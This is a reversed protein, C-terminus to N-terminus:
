DLVICLSPILVTRCDYRMWWTLSYVWQLPALNMSEWVGRNVSFRPLLNPTQTGSSYSNIVSDFFFERFSVRHRRLLQHRRRHFSRDVATMMMPLAPLFSDKPPHGAAVTAAAALRSPLQGQQQRRDPPAETSQERQNSCGITPPSMTLSPYRKRLMQPRMPPQQRAPTTRRNVFFDITCEQDEFNLGVEELAQVHVTLPLWFGIVIYSQM